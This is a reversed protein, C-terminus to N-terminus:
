IQRIKDLDFKMAPYVCFGSQGVKGPVVEALGLKTLQEDVQPWNNTDVFAEDAALTESQGELYVTAVGYPSEDENKAMVALTNSYGYKSRVFKLKRYNM